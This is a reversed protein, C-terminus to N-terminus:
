NHEVLYKEAIIFKMNPDSEPSAWYMYSWLETDFFANHLDVIGGGNKVCYQPNHIGLYKHKPVGRYKFLFKLLEIM